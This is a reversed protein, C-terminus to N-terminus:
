LLMYGDFQALLKAIVQKFMNNLLALMAALDDHAFYHQWSLHTGNRYPKCIVVAYHHWLGFPNPMLTTYVYKIPPQWFVFQEKLIMDNGFDCIRILGQESQYMRVQKLGPIFQCYKKYNAVSEFVCSVPAILFAQYDAQLPMLKKPNFTNTNTQNNTYTM